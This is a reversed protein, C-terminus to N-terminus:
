AADGGLQEDEHAEVSSGLYPSPNGAARPNSALWLGMGRPDRRDMEDLISARLEVVTSRTSDLVAQALQLYSRRWALCLDDDSLAAVEAPSPPVGLDAVEAVEAAEAVADRPLPDLDTPPLDLPPQSLPVGPRLHRLAWLRRVPTTTVVLACVWVMGAVGFFLVLGLWSMALLGFAVVWRPGIIRWGASRAVSLVVVGLLWWAVLSCALSTRGLEIGAAVMGVVASAGRALHWAWRGLSRLRSRRIFAQAM